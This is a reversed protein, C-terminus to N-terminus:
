CNSRMIPFATRVCCTATPPDLRRPHVYNYAQRYSFWLLGGLGFLLLAILAAIFLNLFYRFPKM